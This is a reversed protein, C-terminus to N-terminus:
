GSATVENDLPNRIDQFREPSIMCCMSGLNVHPILQKWLTMRKTILVVVAHKAVNQETNQVAAAGSDTM